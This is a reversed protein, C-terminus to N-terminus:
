EKRKSFILIFFLILSLFFSLIAYKENKLTLIASVILLIAFGIRLFKIIKIKINLSKKM